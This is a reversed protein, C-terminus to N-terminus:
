LLTYRRSGGAGDGVSAAVPKISGSRVDDIAFIGRRSTELPKGIGNLDRGNPVFGKTTVRL